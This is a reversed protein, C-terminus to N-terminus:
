DIRRVLRALSRRTPPKPREAPRGLPILAAIRWGAPVELLAALAAEAVLPGTMWCAGLGRAHASLLLNQIAAAVSCLADAEARDGAPAGDPSRQAAALLDPGARYTPVVVVPAQAFFTFNALYAEAEIAVDDRLGARLEALARGVADAMAELLEPRSVVWLRFAQRNGASPAWRAAELV